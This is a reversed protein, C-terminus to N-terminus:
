EYGEQKSASVSRDMPWSVRGVVVLRERSSSIDKANKMAKERAKRRPSSVDGADITRAVKELPKDERKEENERGQLEMANKKYQDTRKIRRLLHNAIILGSWKCLYDNFKICEGAHICAPCGGGYGLDVSCSPCAQLLDIAAVVLGNPIFVSKWLQACVGSGGARADFITVRTPHYVSHDCQVDNSLCPVFLPACALIAHSLAHIGHGLSESTMVTCLREANCDLWFGFSDYEMDPLSLESRAFEERTVMSLKKYGHVNRKVNVVGCGAFSGLPLDMDDYIKSVDPALPAVSDENKNPHKAANEPSGRKPTILDVREMQKVVTLKLTSLPRTFYRDNCPKAFACLALSGRFGKGEFPPPRTMSVIKYRRTRHTIIAGPFAHYFIRSYSITDMVAAPNQICDMRGAQLPHSTDVIEYSIPEISRISVNTWPNKISPHTKHITVMSTNNTGVIPITEESLSGCALLVEMAEQYISKSGFLDEDSLLGELFTDSRATSAQIQAPNLSGALPFEHGACALHGQVLGAYIPMSLPTSLGRQLLSKPNRWLHQDLPSNFCVCIALSPRHCAAAGRGARGAQQILSAHDTPFGCHLTLDVGGIDVGLELASTGVVGLLENQFLRQEIQRRESKTYGGRYSEVKPILRSTQPSQRLASVTREFVWEVLGRTKCFAICRVGKTVALALLLATEDASHRRHWLKSAVKSKSASSIMNQFKNEESIVGYNDNNNDTSLLKPGNDIYEDAVASDAFSSVRRLHQKAKSSASSSSSSPRAISVSRTSKGNSDLLPPNWVFFHKSSRPSSDQTVINVQQQISLCCLLRFHHEPHPLTASCGLFVIPISTNKSKSRQHQQTISSTAIIAIRYLRALIMAVHAGFVGRYMHAEDIVVYHLQEFLKKYITTNWNPLICAHLTDPNTMIIQCSQCIVARQSHSTDGDLTACHIGLDKSLNYKELISKLKTAQDQALAKTPFLLISVQGMLAAHLVPILYCLSKGSGTGTCVLTPIDRLASEIAIAQHKYLKKPLIDFCRLDLLQKQKWENHLTTSNAYDANQAENSGAYSVQKHLIYTPINSLTSSSIKKDDPKSWSVGLLDSLAKRANREMELVPEEHHDNSDDAALSSPLPRLNWDKKKTQSSSSSSADNTDDKFLEKRICNHYDDVEEDEEKAASAAVRSKNKHKQKQKKEKLKRKLYSLRRKAAAKTSGSLKREDPMPFGIQVNSTTTSAHNTWFLQLEQLMLSTHHTTRANDVDNITSPSSDDALITPGRGEVDATTNITTIIIIGYEILTKLHDWSITDNPITKRITTIPILPKSTARTVFQIITDLLQLSKFLHELEGEGDKNDNYNNTKTQVKYPAAAPSMKELM